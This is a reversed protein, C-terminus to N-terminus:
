STAMRRMACHYAGNRVSARLVRAVGNVAVRATRRQLPNIPIALMQQAWDPLLDIGAVMMWRGVPRSLRGPLRTTLLVQAVEQTREDCRLQPRMDQLYEAVQRPTEPIDEAGLRRAVEAAERYYQEQRAATVITRKYRLHSAMFSSCEAVHVWTLLAPDSARYPTGDPAVGSIRQHIGQVKAILREADDTTGFTTASIFQSTRRLRGFIDERFRSHDWVGALALPHLMQLLLASIGGCLMSTFDGHVQWIASRPGFLGPEGKPNEFDIEKLAMGTLGLVQSEIMGRISTM